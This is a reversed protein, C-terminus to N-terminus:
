DKKTVAFLLYVYSLGLREPHSSLWPEAVESPFELRLVAELDQRREFRWESLVATRSAGREAWWRATVPGGGQPLAWPSGSILEAFEGREHDNDLVVLTGGPRLVRLCEALGDDCGPPFFYAFRAHIVDVSEDPLPLHEASGALVEAKIARRRAMEALAEDPEIGIVKGATAAYTGLHFGTGCGLDVLTAGSWDALERMASWLRGAPDIARNEIEYLDPRSSINPARVFDDFTSM